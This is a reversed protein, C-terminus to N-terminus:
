AISSSAPSRRARGDVVRADLVAEQQVVDALDADGVRDELLGARQRAGLPPPHLRVRHDALLHEGADGNRAPRPGASRASAGRASPRCRSDPRARAAVSSGARRARTRRRRRARRSSSRGGTGARAATPRARAVLDERLRPLLEVGVDDLREALALCRRTSRAPSLEAAATPARCLAGAALPRDARRAGRLAGGSESRRTAAIARAARHARVDRDRPRGQATPRRHARRVPAVRQVRRRAATDPARRCRAPRRACRRAFLAAAAENDNANLARAGRACSRPPTRLTARRMRAMALARASSSECDAHVELQRRLLLLDLREGAVEGVRLDLRVRGVPVALVAERALTKAFSASSPSIPAQTGSSYPPAPASKREYM